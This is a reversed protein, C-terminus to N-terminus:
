PVVELSSYTLVGNVPDSVLGSSSKSFVFGYRGTVKVKTGVAPIPYPVDVMWVDDKYLEKPRATLGKYRASADFVAAFNRAWGLVKIHPKRPDDAKTDKEDAIVFAPIETACGPPDAVGTKHWACKPARPVNSDVIWGVITVPQKTVEASAFRSRLAHTAGFVTFADGVKKPADPLEPVPPLDPTPGPPLTAARYGDDCEDGKPSASPTPTASAVSATPAATVPAREGGGCAAISAVFLISVVRM